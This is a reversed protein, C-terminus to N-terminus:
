DHKAITTKSADLSNSIENFSITIEGMRMWDMALFMQQRFSDGM